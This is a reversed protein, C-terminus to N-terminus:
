GCTREKQGVWWADVADVLEALLKGDEGGADILRTGAQFQTIASSHSGPGSVYGAIEPFSRTTRRRAVIVFARRARIVRKHRCDSTMDAPDVGSIAAVTAQLRELDALRLPTTTSM